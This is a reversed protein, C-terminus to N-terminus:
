STCGHLETPLTSQISLSLDQTRTGSPDSKEKRYKDRKHCFLKPFLVYIILQNYKKAFVLIM